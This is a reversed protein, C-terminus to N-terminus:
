SSVTKGTVSTLWKVMTRGQSDVRHCSEIDRDNNKVGIVVAIKCNQIHPSQIWLRLVNEGLVSPM